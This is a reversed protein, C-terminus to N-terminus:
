RPKRTPRNQRREEEAFWDEVTQRRWFIKRGIKFAGPPLTHQSRNRAVHIAEPSRRMIRALDAVDILEYRLDTIAITGGTKSM